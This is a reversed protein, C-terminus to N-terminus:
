KEVRFKFVQDMEKIDSGTETYLFKVGYMYGPEFMSMDVMLYNGFADYSLKTSNNVFDSEIVSLGDQVRYIRYHLNNLYEAQLDTTAVTYITPSWEKSRVFLKLKVIEDNRYSNKLNSISVIKRNQEDPNGTNMSKVEFTGSHYQNSGSYWVDYLNSATTDVEIDVSYIGTGVWSASAATLAPGSGLTQFLGVSLSGTGVGPINKLQDKVNNYFFLTNFNDDSLSSSAYFNDRDDNIASDWRIELVPRKFFFESSRSFFKKTYWSRETSNELTSSLMLGFGIDSGSTLSGTIWSQLMSTVDLELDETGKDFYADSSASYYDGGQSSWFTSVDSKLWNVEGLDSYENMDLGIGENWSGSIPKATLTFQTPLTEGHPANFLRLYAKFNTSTLLPMTGSAIDSVFKTSPMEILVRSAELSSSSAQGFISFIELVDSAGMNSGSATTVLNSALATSITSDKTAFYRKIAM